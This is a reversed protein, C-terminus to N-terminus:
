EVVIRGSALVEGGGYVKYLYIGNALNAKTIITENTYLVRQTIKKGVIDYLEFVVDTYNEISEVKITATESFPNPYINLGIKNVWEGVSVKIFNIQKEVSDTGCFNTALLKVNFSGSQVPIFNLVQANSTQGDSFKWLVIYADQSTETLLITDGLINFTFDASPLDLVPITKTVSDSTGCSNMAKVWVNATNAIASFSVMAFTDTTKNVSGGGTVGWEYATADVVKNIKYQQTGVCATDTGLISSPMAPPAPDITILDVKEVIDNGIVGGVTLKVTKKGTTNYSVTHPGKGMATLPSAGTGFDWTFSNTSGASTDTFTVSQSPCLITASASFGAVPILSCFNPNLAKMVSKACVGGKLNLDMVYKGGGLDGETSLVRKAKGNSISYHMIETSKIVHGLQHGHGLEHLAVTEFDFQANTPNSTSYNWNKGDDFVIDLEAVYWLTTGGSSCGSWFSSCRGLVGNPLESGVDFRVVNTGDRAITNVTTTAGIDWNILTGCRWTQFARLFSQKVAADNNFDTYLQWTYGTGNEGIHQPQFVDKNGDVVNLQAFTIVINTASQVTGSGNDVTFKGTGARRTVEVKIETDSWSVYEADEPDFLGSGGNNADRFRVRSSGRTSGFNTGMITLVSKTGASLSDPSFSSITPAMNTTPVEEEYNGVVIMKKGTAAELKTYLDPMIHYTAFADHGFQNNGDFHIFGQPGAVPSFQLLPTNIDVGKLTTTAPLGFFVGVEGVKLQLTSTVKQMTNGVVGGITVVYFDQTYPTSSNWNFIKVPRVRNLTFINNHATNWYSKQSVVEGEVITTANKTRETLSVPVLMCQSYAKGFLLTLFLLPLLKKM